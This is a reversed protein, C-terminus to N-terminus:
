GASFPNGGPTITAGTEADVVARTGLPTPLTVNVSNEVAMDTCVDALPTIEVRIAVQGASERAVVLRDRECQGTWLWATLTRGDPALTYRSFRTDRQAPYYTHAAGPSLNPSSTSGGPNAGNGTAPAGPHAQAPGASPAAPDVAAPGGRDAPGAVSPRPSDGDGLVAWTGGGIGLVAVIALGVILPRRPATPEPRLDADHEGHTRM